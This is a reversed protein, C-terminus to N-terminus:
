PRRPSVAKAHPAKACIGRRADFPDFWLEKRKLPTEPTLLPNDLRIIHRACLNARRLADKYFDVVIRQLSGDSVMSELGENLRRALRPERPSVFIYTPLPLVLLLEREIELGSADGGRADYEPFIETVGRPFYDFRGALLMRSLTEQNVATELHLGNAEMIKRSSWGLGVGLSLARLDDLTRVAGIRTQMGHRVFGIRNGSLGMDLPIRIPLLEHEWEPQTVVVAVNGPKGNKLDSLMRERIMPNPQLLINYDGYSRRTRRMAEAIVLDPLEPAAAAFEARYLRVVDTAGGPMSALALLCAFFLRRLVRNPM